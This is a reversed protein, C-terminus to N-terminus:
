TTRRRGRLVLGLSGLLAAAGLDVGVQVLRSVLALAIATPRDTLAGVTLVLVAERM